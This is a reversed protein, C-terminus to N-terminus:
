FDGYIADHLNERHLQNIMETPRPYRLPDLINSGWPHPYWYFWDQVIGDIPIKLSRYESAVGLVQLQNEYRNKSQWYGWVWRGMMPAAGSLNRWQAMAVDLDPGYMVYYDIVSGVHSHWNLVNPEKGAGVKVVTMAPNDWFLGYGMSSMMFPIGIHTPNRQALHVIEGRNNAVGRPHEGLGFIAENPQLVFKQRVRYTAVDKFKVPLMSRGGSSEALFVKGHADLFEVVGTARDIRASIYKASVVVHTATKSLQWTTKVPGHIVALSEHQPNDGTAAFLIRIVRDSYVIVRMAGTALTLLVGHSEQRIATVKLAGGVTARRAAKSVSAGAVVTSTAAAVKLFSRRDTTLALHGTESM